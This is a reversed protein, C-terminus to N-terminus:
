RLNIIEKYASLAGDVVSKTISVALNAKGMAITIDHADVSDPDTIMAQSLSTVDQELQNVENLANGLVESFSKSSQLDSPIDPDNLGPMHKRNTMKMTVFDGSVQNMNLVNNM